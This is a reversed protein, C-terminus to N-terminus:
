LPAEQIIFPLARKIKNATLDNGPGAKHQKRFYQNRLHTIPFNKLIQPYNAPPTFGM